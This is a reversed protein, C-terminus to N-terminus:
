WSRSSTQVRAAADPAAVRGVSERMLDVFRDFLYGRRASRGGGRPPVAGLVGDAAGDDDRLECARSWTTTSASTASRRGHRVADRDAADLPADVAFGHNHATVEVKGTTRDMCRSTSAATATSSSSPASASRGASCSTASASASTRCGASSCTRCCRRDPTPPAGPRGSRQLLLRRRARGRPRRRADRDVPLVHVEIGREAMRQPTMSKIGLDLAAVTFRKEGVAPVVYPEATRSRAPWTPAPWRPQQWCGSWCRTPTPSPRHLHRGADRRARAPAPDARPHRHRLDRRRGPRAARRRPTRQSRWNSPVRAPDRVVYGAVWIRRSEPDEDNIGTNGIHPATMVVVQRHYSPDTLTEQYGTMGTHLGGRRVDRRDAGYSTAASPGATRSSSVAVSGGDHSSGTSSPRGAACSRRSWGARCSWGPSRRTARCRRRSPRSSRGGHAAPDVLILNAPAGTSWPRATSPSGASRARAPRVDPRRRRGLRAARHRGDDHQVVSLATELGLMGFAAAAWECDKDEHPHPAHDTAVIDITGDALGPACRRSTTAQHAAAPQGQLDPRLTAALDDTLLLHHPRSRPPSTGARARPGASSRSRAPPRCTASTCGRGSTRPSCATAPSSRRRPSRRGAPAPRARRVADGENM